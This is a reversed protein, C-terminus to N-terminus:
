PYIGCRECLHWPWATANENRSSISLGSSETGPVATGAAPGDEAATADAAIVDAVVEADVGTVATVATEAIPVTVAKRPMRAISTRSQKM